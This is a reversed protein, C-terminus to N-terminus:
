RRTAGLAPNTVMLTHLSNLGHRYPKGEIQRPFGEVEHRIERMRTASVHHPPVVVLGLAVARAGVACLTPADLRHKIGAILREVTKVGLNLDLRSSTM